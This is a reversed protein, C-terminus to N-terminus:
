YSTYSIHLNKKHNPLGSEERWAGSQRSKTETRKKRAAYTMQKLDTLTSTWWRVPCKHHRNRPINANAAWIMAQQLERVYQITDQRENLNERLLHLCRQLHAGYVEWNAKALNYRRPANTHIEKRHWLPELTIQIVKHSGTLIEPKLIWSRVLNRARTNM